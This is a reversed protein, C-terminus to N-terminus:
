SWCPSSASSRSSCSGGRRRPRVPRRWRPSAPLDACARDDACRATSSRARRRRPRHRARTRVSAAPRARPCGCWGTPCSPSWWRAAHGVGREGTVTVPRRGGAGLRRGGRRRGTCRSARRHRRPRARRGAPHRDDLLWHWSALVAEGGGPRRVPPRPSRRARRRGPHPGRRARRDRRARGRADPLGCTSTWRRPWRRAARARRAARRHRPASADFAACRGEWDLYSGAKEAAAAVPLVVDALDTVASAACSWARGRVRGRGAGRAALSPTPCTPRTSAASWCRRRARRRAGRALIGTPTAAPAAPVPRPGAGARGRRRRPRRRRHRPPRGAAPDPLAGAEVAGREGARRPIWALRAGTARPSRPPARDARRAHEALREGALLVAGPSRLAAEVAPGDGPAPRSRPSRAPRPAPCRDAAATASLTKAPGPSRLPALDYVQPAAPASRRACGCSSSRRSRRPSSAPSCCPRPAGDLDAYTVAATAPAPAPSRARRPVGHEEASHPAPAATSTTPAAARARAFKAYAYADEVTLRGGPLVGVGGDERAALLGEAAAAEAGRDLLRSQLEGTGPRPGAAHHAPANATVYSFAWRGKDCNWEENVTRTTAPWAARTVKGRRHDTRM